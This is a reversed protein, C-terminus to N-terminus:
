WYNIAIHWLLFFLFSGLLSSSSAPKILTLRTQINSFTQCPLLTRRLLLTHHRFSFSFCTYLRCAPKYSGYPSLSTSNAPIYLPEYTISLSQAGFERRKTQSQTQKRGRGGNGIRGKTGKELKAHCRFPSTIQTALYCSFGRSFQMFFTKWPWFSRSAGRVPHQVNKVTSFMRLIINHVKNCLSPQQHLSLFLHSLKWVTLFNLM